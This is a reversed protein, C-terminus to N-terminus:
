AARSSADKAHPSKTVLTRWIGSCSCTSLFIFNQSLLLDELIFYGM